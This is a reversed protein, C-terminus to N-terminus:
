LGLVTSPGVLIWLGVAVIAVALSTDVTARPALVKQATVLVCIVVMWPVSMVGVALLLVM